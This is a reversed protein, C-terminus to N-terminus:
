ERVLEYLIQAGQETKIQATFELAGNRVTAPMKAIRKGVTNIRYVTLQEPKTVHLRINARGAHVLNPLKGWAVVVDRNEDMFKMDTNLIDTLHTLLLRKAVAIPEMSLSSVWVTAESDLVEVELTGTTMRGNAPAYGGATRPTDLVYTKTNTDLTVQNRADAYIKRGLDTRNGAPLLNKVVSDVGDAAMTKSTVPLVAAAGETGKGSVTIGVRASTCLAQWSPVISNTEDSSLNNVQGDRLKLAVLEKAPEIDRRLFLCIAAREAAQSLADSRLDFYGLAGPAFMSSSHSYAFRWLGGWDQLSALCGTAIGGIGRYRGPGSYNFETICFPKDLLRKFASGSGGVCGSETVSTHACKSPLQWSNVLFSPHDIYFHDDVYDLENRAATTWINTGSHNMDSILAKCGMEDRLFARMRKLMTTELDLCCSVFDQWVAPEKGGSPLAAEREAVKRGWAAARAKATGYKRVLWANWANLWDAKLEAPMDHIKWSAADINGENIMNILVLSPDKTYSLGTHPNVHGLFNRTFKCWNQFANENVPVSYKFMAPVMVADDAVGANPWIEKVYVNRSVYLDTTAYFGRIKFENFMADFMVMKEPSLGTSDGNRSLCINREYHHYRVTNYGIRRLREALVASQEPSINHASFCFNVGYFRQSVGPKGEFEFHPGVAKLYGYKGAPCDNNSINTFDLASDKEIELSPIDLPIWEDNAKITVPERFALTMNEPATLTYEIRLPKGAKFEGSEESNVGIRLTCNEGWQRNDQLMVHTPAAFKLEFIGDKTDVAFSSVTGDYLHINTGLSSPVKGAAKGNVLFNRGAVQSMPVVMSAYLANMSMDAQPTFEYRQWLNRKGVQKFEQHKAVQGVDNKSGGMVDIIGNKPPELSFNCFGRSNWGPLFYGADLTICVRGEKQITALGDNSMMCQLDAHLCVAALCVMVTLLRKM